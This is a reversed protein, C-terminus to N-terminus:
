CQVSEADVSWVREWRVDGRPTRKGLIVLFRLVTLSFYQTLLDISVQCVSTLKCRGVRTDHGAGPLRSSAALRGHNLFPSM